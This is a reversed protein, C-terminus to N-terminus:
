DGRVTTLLTSDFVAAPSIVPEDHPVRSGHRERMKAKVVKDSM